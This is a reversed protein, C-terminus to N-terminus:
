LGHIFSGRKLFREAKSVKLPRAYNIGDPSPSTGENTYGKSFYRPHSFAM